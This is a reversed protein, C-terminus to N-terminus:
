IAWVGPLSLCGEECKETEESTEIVSPNIFVLGPSKELKAVFIRHMYGVQPGALGIGKQQILLELMKAAIHTVESNISNIRETRQRLLENGLTLIEM